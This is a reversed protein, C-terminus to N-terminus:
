VSRCKSKTEIERSEKTKNQRSKERFSYSTKSRYGVLIQLSPSLRTKFSGNVSSSYASSLYSSPASLLKALSSRLPSPVSPSLILTLLYHLSFLHTHIQFFQTSRTIIWLRKRGPFGKIISYSTLSVRIREALRVGRGM